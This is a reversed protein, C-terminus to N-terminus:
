SRHLYPSFIERAGDKTFVTTRDDQGSIQQLTGFLRLGFSSPSDTLFFYDLSLKTSYGPKAENYDTFGIATGGELSFVWNGSFIHNKSLSVGQAWLPQCLFFTFLITLLIKM